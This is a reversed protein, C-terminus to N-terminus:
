PQPSQGAQSKRALGAIGSIAFALDHAVATLSIKKVRCPSPACAPRGATNQRKAPHLRQDPGRAFVAGGGLACKTVCIKDACVALIAAFEVRHRRAPRLWQRATAPVAPQGRHRYTHEGAALRAQLQIVRQQRRNFAKPLKSRRDFGIARQRHRLRDIPNADAGLRVILGAVSARGHASIRKDAPCSNDGSWSQRYPNQANKNQLRHIRALGFRCEVIHLRCDGIAQLVRLPAQAQLRMFNDANILISQPQPAFDSKKERGGIAGGWVAWFLCM